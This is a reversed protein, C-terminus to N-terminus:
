QAATLRQVMAHVAAPQAGQRTQFGAGSYGWWDWCGNPNFPTPESRGVQPYLMIIRNVDAWHNYGLRGYVADGVEAASQLCGHFVVHIACGGARCAQPIYVFGQEQMGSSAAGAFESQDFGMPEASLATAKPQLPGQIHELIAGPQDYPVGGDSCLNVFPAANAACASGFRDSLFAHGAELTKVYLLNEAPVKAALFFARTADVVAPAVVADRAGSFLYVKQRALNDLPDVQGSAAFGFAAEYSAEGRPSGQMCTSIGRLSAWACNYPGGAVVGVGITSASFAVAYQVAMFGGASLGSVSVKEADANMAPLRAAEASLATAQGLLALLLPLM